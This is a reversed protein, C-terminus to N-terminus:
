PAPCPTMKVQKGEQWCITTEIMDRGDVVLQRQEGIGGPMPPQGLKKAFDEAYMVQPGQLKYNKMYSKTTLYKGTYSETMIVDDPLKTQVTVQIEKTTNISPALFGKSMTVSDVEGMTVTIGDPRYYSISLMPALKPATKNAMSEMTPDDYHMESKGNTLSYTVHEKSLDMKNDTAYYHQRMKLDTTSKSSAHVVKEGMPITLDTKNEIVFGGLVEVPGEVKGNVCQGSFMAQVVNSYTTSGKGPPTFGMERMTKRSEKEMKKAFEPNAAMTGALMTKEEDSLECPWAPAPNPVNFKAPDAFEVRDKEYRAFYQKLDPNSLNPYDRALAPAAIALSLLLTNRFM